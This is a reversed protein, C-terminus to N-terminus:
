KRAVALHYRVEENANRFYGTIQKQDLVQMSKSSFFEDLSDRIDKEEGAVALIGGDKLNEFLYKLKQPHIHDGFVGASIMSHYRGVLEGIHPQDINACVLDRYGREKATKMMLHAIDAGDVVYGKSILQMGVLGTGCGIDFVPYEPNLFPLTMNVLEEPVNYKWRAVQNEYLTDDGAHFNWTMLKSGANILDTPNFEGKFLKAQGLISWGDRETLKYLM